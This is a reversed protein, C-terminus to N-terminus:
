AIQFRSRSQNSVAGAARVVGAAVIAGLVPSFTYTALLRLGTGSQLHATLMLGMALAPNLSCGSVAGVSFMAATMMLGIAFGGFQQHPPVRVQVAGTGLQSSAVGAVTLTLACAFLAEACVADLWGFGEGPQYTWVAGDLLASCTVGACLAGLFQALLYMCVDRNSLRSSSSLKVGLTVAPNVHGASRGSSLTMATLILGVSLPGLATKQVANLGVTLVLFFTGVWEAVYAEIDLPAGEADKM